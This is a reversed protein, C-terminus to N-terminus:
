FGVYGWLIIAAWKRKTITCVTPAHECTNKKQHIREYVHRIKTLISM